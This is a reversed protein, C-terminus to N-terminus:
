SLFAGWIRHGRQVIAFVPREPAAQRLVKQVEQLSEPRRSGLWLLRDGPRLGAEDALSGSEVSDIQFGTKPTTWALGTPGFPAAGEARASLKFNRKRGNRWIRLDLMERAVPLVLPEIEAMSTTERGEIALIVDGPVLGARHAEWGEWVEAVLLGSQVQFAALAAESLLEVRMGYRSMVRESIIRPAIFSRELTGVDIATLDGDCSVVLGMLAGDVDFLGGGLMERDFAINTRLITAEIGQCPAKSSGLYQGASYSLAGDPTRWAALAWGGATFFGASYRPAPRPPDEESTELLAAPLDASVRQPWVRWNRQNPRVAVDKEPFRSGDSATAVSGGDWLIASQRAKDLWVVHPELRHALDSFYQAMEEVSRRLTMRQLFPAESPAALAASESEDKPKPRLASGVVLITAAVAALVLIYRRHQENKGM